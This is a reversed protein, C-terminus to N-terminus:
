KVPAHGLFVRMTEAVDDANEEDTGSLPIVQGSASRVVPIHLASGSAADKIESVTVDAIDALPLELPRQWFVVQRVIRAVGKPKDLTCTTPNLWSSSRLVLHRSDAELVKMHVSWTAIALLPPADAPPVGEHAGENVGEDAGENRCPPLVGDAAARSEQGRARGVV